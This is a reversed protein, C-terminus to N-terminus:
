PTAMTAAQEFFLSAIERVDPIFGIVVLLVACVVVVAASGTPVPFAAQQVASP